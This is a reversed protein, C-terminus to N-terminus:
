SKNLEFWRYANDLTFFSGTVLLADGTKLQPCIAALASEMDPYSKGQLGNQHAKSM